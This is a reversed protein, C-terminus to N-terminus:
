NWGMDDECRVIVCPYVSAHFILPKKHFLTFACYAGWFNYDYTYNKSNIIKTVYPCWM